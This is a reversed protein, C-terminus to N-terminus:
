AVGLKADDLAIVIDIADFYAAGCDTCAWERGAVALAHADAADAPPREFLQDSRCDSCWVLRLSLLAFDDRTVAPAAQNSTIM